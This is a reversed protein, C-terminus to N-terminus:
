VLEHVEMRFGPGFSRRVLHRTRLEEREIVPGEDADADRRGCGRLERHRCGYM